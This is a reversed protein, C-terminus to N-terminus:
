RCVNLRYEVRDGFVGGPNAARAVGVHIADVTCDQHLPRVVSRNWPEVGALRQREAALGQNAAADDVSPRNVNAIGSRLEIGGVIRDADVELAAPAVPCGERHRQQTLADRDTTDGDAPHLDLREGQLLDLKELGE